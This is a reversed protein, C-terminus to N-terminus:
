QLFLLLCSLQRSMLTLNAIAVVHPSSGVARGIVKMRIQNLFIMTTGGKSLSGCLKRMASSMLRAQSGM